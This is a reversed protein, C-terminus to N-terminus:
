SGARTVSGPSPQPPGQSCAGVGGTPVSISIPDMEWLQPATGAGGTGTSPVHWGVEEAPHSGMGQLAGVHGWQRGLGQLQQPVSRPLPSTAAGHPQKGQTGVCGPVSLPWMEGSVAGLGWLAGQAQLDAARVLAGGKDGRVGPRAPTGPWGQGAWSGRLVPLLGAPLTPCCPLALGAQMAQMASAPKFAQCRCSWTQLLSRFRRQLPTFRTTGLSLFSSLYALGPHPSSPVLRHMYIELMRKICLRWPSEQSHGALNSAKFVSSNNFCM